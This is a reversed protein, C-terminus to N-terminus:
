LTLESQINVQLVPSFKVIYTAVYQRCDNRIYHTTHVTMVLYAEKGCVECPIYKGSLQGKSPM